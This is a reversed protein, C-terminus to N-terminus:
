SYGFPQDNNFFSKITKLAMTNSTRKFFDSYFVLERNDHFPNPLSLSNLFSAAKNILFDSPSSLDKAGILFVIDPNHFREALERTSFVPERLEASKAILITRICWAIRKNLLTVDQIKNFYSILFWALDSAKSIDESYDSKYKFSERVLGMDFGDEYIVKSEECIHLIFLDGDLARKVALEIPYCAINAKGNVVMRYNEEDTIAFLDIDSSSTNDGRARSGYLSLTLIAM